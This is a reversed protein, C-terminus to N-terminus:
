RKRTWGLLGSRSYIFGYSAAMQKARTARKSLLAIAILVVLDVIYYYPTLLSGGFLAFHIFRVAGALLVMYFILRWDDIWNAAVARGSLAAAVGGLIVTVFLFEWISVEWLLGNANEM